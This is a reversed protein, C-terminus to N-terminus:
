VSSGNARKGKTPSSSGDPKMQHFRCYSGMLAGGDACHAVRAQVDLLPVDGIAHAGIRGIARAHPFMIRVRPGGSLSLPKRSGNSREPVGRGRALGSSLPRVSLPQDRATGWAACSGASSRAM